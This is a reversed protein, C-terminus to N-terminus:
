FLKQKVLPIPQGSGITKKIQTKGTNFDQRRNQTQNHNTNAAENTIRYSIAVLNVARISVAVLLIPGIKKKELL